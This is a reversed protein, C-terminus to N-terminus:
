EIEPFTDLWNEDDYTEINHVIRELFKREYENESKPNAYWVNSQGFGYTIGKKTAKPVDWLTRRHRVSVPLLVCDESAAYVNYDQVSIEGNEYQREIQQFNRCVIAHKFWGMVALDGRDLKSCFIVLVDEAFEDKGSACSEEIKEIHLQNKSSKSSKTEVFGFCYDKTDEDGVLVSTRLFNRSEQVNGNTDVYNGGNRPRDTPCIGKYFKM